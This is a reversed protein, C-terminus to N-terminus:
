VMKNFSIWIQKRMNVLALLPCDVDITIACLQRWLGWTKNSNDICTPKGLFQMTKAGTMSVQQAAEHSMGFAQKNVEIKVNGGHCGLSNLLHEVKGSTTVKREQTPMTFAYDIHCKLLRDFTRMFAHLTCFHINKLPFKIIPNWNSDKNQEELINASM